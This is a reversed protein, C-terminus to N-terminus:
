SAVPALAARAEPVPPAKRWMRVGLAFSWLTILLSSLLFTTEAVQVERNLALQILAAVASGVGGIMPTWGYRRPYRGSSLIAAGFCAFAAGFFVLMGVSWIGFGISQAAVASQLVGDGGGHAVTAAFSKMAFGDITTSVTVLAGGLLSAGVALRAGYIGPSEALEEALGLLGGIVLLIAVIIALHIASWPAEGAILQLRAGADPTAAHPHLANGVLGLLSGVILLGAAARRQTGFSDM